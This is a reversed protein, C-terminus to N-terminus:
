AILELLSIADEITHAQVTSKRLLNADSTVLFDTRARQAAAMVMNDELDSSLNRYKCALWVDSEDAGIATANERMSEVCGWALAQAALAQSETLSGSDERAKQKTSESALYFVDKLAHVPYLLTVGKRLALDILKKADNSRERWPFFYDIWVNTDLVISHQNGTM